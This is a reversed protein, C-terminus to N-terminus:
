CDWKHNRQESIYSNGSFESMPLSLGSITHNTSTIKKAMNTFTIHIDSSDWSPKSLGSMLSRRSGVGISLKSLSSMMSRQREVGIHERGITDNKVVGCISTIDMDIANLLLSFNDVTGDNSMSSMNRANPEQGLESTIMTMKSEMSGITPTDSTLMTMISEMSDITPTWTSHSFSGISEKRSASGFSGLQKLMSTPVSIIRGNSKEAPIQNAMKEGLKCDRLAQSTKEVAKKDGIDFWVGKYDDRQLFRGKQERIVAVISQSITKRETKSCTMYLRKNLNVLRRYTQNGAHQLAAGGRACIIDTERPQVIDKM